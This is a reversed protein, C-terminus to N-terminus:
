SHKENLVYEAEYNAIGRRVLAEVTKREPGGLVVTGEHVGAKTAMVNPVAPTPAVSAWGPTPLFGLCWPSTAHPQYLPLMPYGNACRDDLSVSARVVIFETGCVRSQLCEASKM